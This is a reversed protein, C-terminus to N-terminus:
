YESVLKWVKSPEGTLHNIVDHRKYLKNTRTNYFYTERATNPDPTWFQHLVEKAGVLKMFNIPNGSVQIKGRRESIDSPLFM